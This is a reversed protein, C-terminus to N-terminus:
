TFLLLLLLTMLMIMVKVRKLLGIVRILAYEQERVV